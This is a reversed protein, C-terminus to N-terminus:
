DPPSQDDSNEKRFLLSSFDFVMMLMVISSIITLDPEPVFWIVVGVSVVVTLMAIIVLVKDFMADIREHLPSRNCTLGGVVIEAGVPASTSSAPWAHGLCARGLM